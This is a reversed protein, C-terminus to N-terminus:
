NNKGDYMMQPHKFLDDANRERQEGKWLYELQGKLPSYPTVEFLTKGQTRALIIYRSFEQASQEIVKQVQQGPTVESADIMEHITSDLTVFTCPVAFRKIVEPHLLLISEKNMTKVQGEDGRRTRGLVWLVIREKFLHNIHEKVSQSFSLM